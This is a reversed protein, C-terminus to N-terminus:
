WRYEEWEIDYHEGHKKVFECALGKFWDVIKVDMMFMPTEGYAFVYAERAIGNVADECNGEERLVDYGVCDVIAAGLANEPTDGFGQGILDFDEISEIECCWESLNYESIMVSHESTVSRYTITNPNIAYNPDVEEWVQEATLQEYLDINMNLMDNEKGEIESM